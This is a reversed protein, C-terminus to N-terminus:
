SKINKISLELLEQIENIPYMINQILMIALDMYNHEIAIEFLQKNEQQSLKGLLSLITSYDGTNCLHFLENNQM